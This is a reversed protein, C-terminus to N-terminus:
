AMGAKRGIQAFRRLRQMNKLDPGLEDFGPTEIIFPLRRFPKHTLCRSLGEVGIHGEGLNEHEDRRSGCPRRSDNLHFCGIREYGIWRKLDRDLRRFDAADALDYGSACLHASDLCVGVAPAFRAALRGLTALDGLSHASGAMGELLLATGAPLHPLLAFLMKELRAEGGAVGRDSGPHVVVSRAGLRAASLLDRRLAGFTKARVERDPSAPNALFISHIILERVGYAPALARYGAGAAATVPGGGWGRPNAAFIQVCSCGLKRARELMRKWGGAVSLHAGFLYDSRKM